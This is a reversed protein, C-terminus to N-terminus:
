TTQSKRLVAILRGEHDFVEVVIPYGVAHVACTICPDYCRIAIEIKRLLEKDIRGGRILKRAANKVDLNIAANNMCTPTIVNVMTAIGEEDAKYHHILTGRPAEVIGVGEGKYEGELSVIDERTLTEDSALEALAEAAHLIEIVRAWHYALSNHFPKKLQAVMDKFAAQAKDTTIRDAVNLRGLPGVRYIGSNEGDAFGRWGVPKLYPFKVYTWSEVREEIYDLYEIGRFRAYENGRPGVVRVAGDYFELANGEGVLGMYYTRLYYTTEEFLRAKEAISLFVELTKEAFALIERSAEEIKKREEEKLRKSVGGPIATVPHTAKGGIIEEVMRVLSRVRLLRRVLDPEHKLLGVISRETASLGPYFDPLAMLYFHLTHSDIIHAYYGLKRIKVATEPPTRGFLEDCAKASALHHAWPCVGCIRTVIRPLEEVPRDVCWAEFGGFTEIQWFADRVNGREDLVITVKTEGEVRTGPAITVIRAM